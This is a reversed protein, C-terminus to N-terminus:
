RGSGRTTRAKSGAPSRRPPALSGIAYRSTGRSKSTEGGTRCSRRGGGTGQESLRASDGEKRIRRPVGQAWTTPWTSSQSSPRLPSPTSPMSSTRGRIERLKTEIDDIALKEARNEKFKADTESDALRANHTAGQAKVRAFDDSLVKDSAPAGGVKLVFHDRLLLADEVEPLYHGFGVTMDGGGDLHTFGIYNGRYNEVGRFLELLEDALDEDKHKHPTWYQELPTGDPHDMARGSAREVLVEKDGEPAVAWCGTRKQIQDEAYAEQSISLAALLAAREVRDCFARAGAPGFLKAAAREIDARTPDGATM